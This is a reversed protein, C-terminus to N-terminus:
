HPRQSFEVRSRRRCPEARACALRSAADRDRVALPEQGPWSYAAVLPGHVPPPPLRGGRRRDTRHADGRGGRDNTGEIGRRRCGGPEPRNREREPCASEVPRGPRCPRPGSARELEPRVLPRAARGDGCHSRVQESRLCRRNLVVLPSTAAAALDSAPATVTPLPTEQGSQTFESGDGTGYWRVANGARLGWGSAVASNMGASFTAGMVDSPEEATSPGGLLGSNATVFFSGPLPSVGISYAPLGISTLAAVGPEQPGTATSEPSPSQVPNAGSNEPLQSSGPSRAPPSARRCRTLWDCAWRWVRASAM